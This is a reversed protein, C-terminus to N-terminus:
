VIFTEIVNQHWKAFYRLCNKVVLYHWKKNDVIMLIIVQNKRTSNHKSIYAHRIKEINCPVYFINLAITKNNSEFMKWVKKHSPFSMGKWNYDNIFPMIKSIRQPDKGFNQYNLTLTKAYQFYKDDNNKSNITVKKNKFWQNIKYLKYHLLNVSDFVLESEKM